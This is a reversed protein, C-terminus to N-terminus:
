RYSSSFIFPEDSWSATIKYPSSFPLNGDGPWLGLSFEDLDLPDTFEDDISNRRVGGFTYNGCPCYVNLEGEFTTILTTDGVAFIYGTINPHTVRRSDDRNVTIQAQEPNARCALRAIEDLTSKTIQDQTSRVGAKLQSSYGNALLDFPSGGGFFYHHVFSQETQLGNYDLRNIPNNSAFCFLHTGGREQIPDRSSWRGAVPDYPRYVALSLGSEHWLHGTYGHSFDESGSIRNRKGWPSFAYSATTTGATGDAVARTSGLHDTILLHKATQQNTATLNELGGTWRRQKTNNVSREELIQTGNWVWTRVPQGNKSESIRRNQGDYQFTWVDSAPPSSQSVRAVSTMRNKADWTYTYRGDTLLNGETDHTTTITGAPGNDVRWTQSTTNGAKDTAQM